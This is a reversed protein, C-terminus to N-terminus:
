DRRALLPEPLPWFRVMGDLGGTVLTRGDNSFALTKAGPGLDKLDGFLKARKLNRLRVTGDEAATAIVDSSPTFAIATVRAKHNNLTRLGRWTTASWLKISGDLSGAALTSGDPAFGLASVFDGRGRLTRRVDHTELNWLKVTSDASGSALWRGAPDVALAQVANEHGELVAEPATQTGTRWLAVTWDHAAAAIRDESGAFVASWVSADNRKFTNLRSRSDLDYIAVTGDAHGTVAHNNRVSLSTATGAELPISGKLEHTEADWIKLSKDSGATVILRGDGSFSMADIAGDHARFEAAQVINREAPQTAISGTTVGSPV